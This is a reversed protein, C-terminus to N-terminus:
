GVQVAGTERIETRYVNERGMYGSIFAEYHEAERRPVLCLIVGAFGGGHVRCVGDGIEKLFLETLALALAIKQEKPNQMSWCNQLWEWSSHGSEGILRLLGQVEGKEICEAAAEVRRNEEYFHLARLIARDNKIDKLRALLLKEEAECLRRVGLTGAVEAMEEPILSYEGSLDAHGKGTNVIFMEYGEDRFSFPLKEYRIHETDSFDLFIMGGAACAMQDMLGSAKKWYVNEAYQGIVAYDTCEMTEQNFLGNIVACILMEFSASSSVGAAPIVETSIYADFGGTRFGKRDAGELLGALLAATGTDEASKKLARLDIRIEDYGESIVRVEDMGNAAAAGITDMSVSAAIIKGGNHDTHNGIIESRGPSSFFHCAEYGFHEKFNGALKEFRRRSRESEGYVQELITKEPLKM